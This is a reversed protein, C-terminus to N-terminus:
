DGGSDGQPYDKICQAMVESSVLYHEWPGYFGYGHLRKSEKAVIYYGGYTTGLIECKHILEDGQSHEHMNQWRKDAKHRQQLRDVVRGEYFLREPLHVYSGITGHIM